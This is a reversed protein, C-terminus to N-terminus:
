GSSAEEPTEQTNFMFSDYPDDLHEKLRRNLDTDSHGVYRIQIGDQDVRSGIVYNGITEPKILSDITDSDLKYVGTMDLNIM